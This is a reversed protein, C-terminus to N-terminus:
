DMCADCGYGGLDKEVWILQCRHCRAYEHETEDACCECLFNGENYFMGREVYQGEEVKGCRQCTEPQNSM